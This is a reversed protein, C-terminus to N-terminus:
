RLHVVRGESWAQTLTELVALYDEDLPLSRQLLAAEEIYNSFRPSDDHVADALKQMVHEAHPNRDSQQRSLLRCALYLALM